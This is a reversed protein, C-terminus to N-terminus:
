LLKIFTSYLLHPIIIFRFCVLSLRDRNFLKMLNLFILPVKEDQWLFFPDRTAFWGLPSLCILAIKSIGFAFVGESVTIFGIM